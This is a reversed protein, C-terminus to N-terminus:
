GKLKQILGPKKSVGKKLDNALGKAIANGILPLKIDVTGKESINCSADGTPEITTVGSIAVLKEKGHAVVKWSSRRASTDWESTVTTKDTQGKKAGPDRTPDEREVVMTVRSGDSKDIRAQAKVAGDMQAEAEAYGVTTMLKVVDDASAPCSVRTEYDVSM